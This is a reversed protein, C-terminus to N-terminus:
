RLTPSLLRTGGGGQRGSGVGLCCTSAVEFPKSRHPDKWAQGQGEELTQGHILELLLGLSALLAVRM